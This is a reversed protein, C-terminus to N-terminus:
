LIESRKNRNNKYNIFIILAILFVFILHYKSFNNEGVKLALPFINFTYLISEDKTEYITGFFRPKTVLFDFNNSLSIRTGETNTNQQKIETQFSLFEAYINISLTYVIILSAIILILYRAKM